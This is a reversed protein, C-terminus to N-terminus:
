GNIWREIKQPCFRIARGLRVPRPFDEKKMLNQLHRESVNLWQAVEKKTLLTRGTM